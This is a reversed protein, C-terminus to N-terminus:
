QSDATHSRVPDLAFQQLRHLRRWDKHVDTAIGQRKHRTVLGGDRITRIAPHCSIERRGLMINAKGAGNPLM